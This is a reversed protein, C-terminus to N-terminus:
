SKNKTLSDFTNVIQGGIFYSLPILSFFIIDIWLGNTARLINLLDLVSIILLFLGGMIACARLTYLFKNGYFIKELYDIYTIYRAFSDSVGLQRLKNYNMRVLPMGYCRGIKIIFKSIKKNFIIVTLSLIIAYVLDINQNM